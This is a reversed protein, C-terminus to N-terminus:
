KRYIVPAKHKKLWYKELDNTMNTPSGKAGHAHFISNGEVYIAAHGCWKGNLDQWRWVLIDGKRLEDISTFDMKKQLKANSLQRPNM